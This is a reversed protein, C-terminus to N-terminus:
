VVSGPAVPPQTAIKELKGKLTMCNSDGEIQQHHQKKVRDLLLYNYGAFLGLYVLLSTVEVAVAIRATVSWAGGHQSYINTLTSILGALANLTGPMYLRNLLWVYNNKWRLSLWINGAYGVVCCLAAIVLLPLSQVTNLIETAAESQQVIANNQLKQLSTFTGPFVVFGALLIWGFFSALINHLRPIKDLALLM